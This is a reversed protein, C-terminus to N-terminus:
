FLRLSEGPLLEGNEGTVFEVVKATRDQLIHGDLSGDLKNYAKGRSKLSLERRVALLPSGTTLLTTLVDKMGKLLVALHDLYSWM